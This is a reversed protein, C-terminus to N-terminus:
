INAWRHSRFQLCLFPSGLWLRASNFLCFFWFPSVPSTSFASCLELFSPIICLFLVPDRCLFGKSDIALFWVTGNPSWLGPLFYRPLLLSFPEWLQTPSLFTQIGFLWISLGWEGNPVNSLLQLAARCYFPLSERSCLKEFTSMKYWATRHKQSSDQASYPM